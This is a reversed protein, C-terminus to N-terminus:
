GGEAELMALADQLETKFRNYVSQKVAASSSIFHVNVKMRENYIGIIIERDSKTLDQGGIISEAGGVGHQVATSWVVNQLAKSRSEIDFGKGKFYSVVSDFYPGKIYTHQLDYFYQSNESAIKKWVEDFNKGYGGDINRADMLKEYLNKDQDSLWVLFSNLSGMNSAFQYVGYSKGGPDGPTDAITGPNGSSEYKASLSGLDGNTNIDTKAPKKQEDSLSIGLLSMFLVMIFAILLIGAVFFFMFIKLLDNKITKSIM